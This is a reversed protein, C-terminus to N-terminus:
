RAEASSLAYAARGDRDTKVIAKHKRLHRLSERIDSARLATVMVLEALTHSGHELAALIAQGTPSHVPRERKRARRAAKRPATTKASARPAPADPQSVPRVPRSVAAGEAALAEAATSLREYEAIAPRLESLRADIEARITMLLDAM